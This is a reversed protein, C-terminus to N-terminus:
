GAAFKCYQMAYGGKFTTEFMAFLSSDSLKNPYLFINMFYSKAADPQLLMNKMIRLKIGEPVVGDGNLVDITKSNVDFLFFLPLDGEASKVIDQKFNDAQILPVEEFNIAANIKDSIENFETIDKPSLELVLETRDPIISFVLKNSYIRARKLNATNNKLWSRDVTFSLSFNLKLENAAFLESLGNMGRKSLLAPTDLDIFTTIPGNNTSVMIMSDVVAIKPAVKKDDEDTVTPVVKKIFGGIKYVADALIKIQDKDTLELFLESM